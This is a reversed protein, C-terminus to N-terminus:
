LVNFFIFLKLGYLTVGPNKLLVTFIFATIFLRKLKILLAARDRSINSVVM